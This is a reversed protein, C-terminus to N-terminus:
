AKQQKKKKRHQYLWYGGGVLIVLYILTTIPSRGAPILGLSKAEKVSYIPVNVEDSFTYPKNFGDKYEVSVTLPLVEDIDADVNLTFEATEFDDSELNGLYVTNPSIVQYMDSTELIMTMFKIESPGVNSVSLVVDGTSSKTYFDRDQLNLEFQPPQDVVLGLFTSTVDTEYETGDKDTYSLSLPIKYVKSEADGDVIITFAIETSKGPALSNVTKENSSGLATFPLKEYPILTSETITTVFNLKVKIDKLVGDADNTLLLKVEATQGPAPREPIVTVTDVSLTSTQSAIRVGFDELLTWSLGDDLSYRLDITEDGPLAGSDVQVRYYLTAVNDASQVPELSGIKKQASVTPELSFPYSPVLEFMVNKATESGINEVNWRLELTEGPSVPDPSQSTLTVTLDYGDASLPIVIVQAAVSNVVMLCLAILTILAPIKKNM